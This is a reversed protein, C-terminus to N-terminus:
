EGTMRFFYVGVSESSSRPTTGSLEVEYDGRSLLRAPLNLVVVERGEVSTRRLHEVTVLTRGGVANLVASYDQYEDDGTVLRLQVVGAGQPAGLSKVEGSERTRGRNLTLSVAPEPPQYEQRNLRAVEQALASDVRGGPLFLWFASLLVAALATVLAPIAWWRRGGSFLDSLGRAFRRRPMESPTHHESVYRRLTKAFRLSQQRQPSSLFHEQFREMERRSLHGSLYRDILEEEAISIEEFFADDTLLREEVQQRERESLQGLLYNKVSTTEEPRDSM